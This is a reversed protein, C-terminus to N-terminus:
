FLLYWFKIQLNQACFNAKVVPWQSTYIRYSAETSPIQVYFTSIQQKLATAKAVFLFQLWYQKHLTYATATTRHSCTNITNLSANGSLSTIPQLLLPAPRRQRSWAIGWVPDMDELVLEVLELCPPRRVTRTTMSSWCSITMLISTQTSILTLANLPPSEYLCLLCTDLAWSGLTRHNAHCLPCKFKKPTNSPVHVSKLLTFNCHETKRNQKKKSITEIVLHQYFVERKVKRM